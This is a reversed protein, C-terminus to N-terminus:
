QGYWGWGNFYPICLIPSWRVLPGLALPGLFKSLYRPLTTLPLTRRYSHRIWGQPEGLGNWARLAKEAEAATAYLWRHGRGGKGFIRYSRGRGTQRLVSGSQPGRSRSKELASGLM